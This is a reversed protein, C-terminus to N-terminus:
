GDSADPAVASATRGGLPARRAVVTRRTILWRGDIRRLDDLYTVTGLSGDTNVGLGKSRAAARDGDISDIVTNTVLHALPNAAGLALSAEIIAPLGTLVGGGLDSVDYIVDEALIEGLRELEGDDVLHGHRAIVTMIALQDEIETM